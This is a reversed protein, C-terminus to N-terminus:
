HIRAYLLIYLKCFTSQRGTPFYEVLNLSQYSSKILVQYNKRYTSKLMEPEINNYLKTILHLLSTSDWSSYSAVWDPHRTLFFPRLCDGWGLSNVSYIATGFPVIRLRDLSQRYSHFGYLVWSPLIVMHWEKNQAQCSLASINRDTFNCNLMQIVFIGKQSSMFLNYVLLSM